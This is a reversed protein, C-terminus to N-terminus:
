RASMTPATVDKFAVAWGLGDPWKFSNASVRFQPDPLWNPNAHEDLTSERPQAPRNLNEPNVVISAARHDFAQVM